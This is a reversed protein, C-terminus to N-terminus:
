PGVGTLRVMNHYHHRQDKVRSTMASTPSLRREGDTYVLNSTRLGKWESSLSHRVEIFLVRLM